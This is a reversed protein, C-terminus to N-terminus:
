VHFPEIFYGDPGILGCMYIDPEVGFGDEDGFDQQVCDELYVCGNETIRAEVAYFKRRKAEWITDYNYLNGFLEPTVKLEIWVLKGHGKKVREYLSEWSGNRPIAQIRKEEMVGNENHQTAFITFYIWFKARQLKGKVENLYFRHSCKSM